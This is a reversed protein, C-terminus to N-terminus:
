HEWSPAGAYASKQMTRCRCSGLTWRYDGTRANIDGVLALPKDFAATVADLSAFLAEEPSVDTWAQWVPLHHAQFPLIHANM